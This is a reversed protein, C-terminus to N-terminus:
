AYSGWWRVILQYALLDRPVRMTFRIGADGPNIPDAVEAGYDLDAFGFLRGLGTTRVEIVAPTEVPDSGGGSPPYEAEFELRVTDAENFATVDFRAGGAGIPVHTRSASAGISGPMGLALDAQLPRTATPRTVDREVVGGAPVVLGAVVTAPQADAAAVVLRYTGAPVNRIRYQNALDGPAGAVFSTGSMLAVALDSAAPTVEGQVTTSGGSGGSSGCGTVALALSGVLAALLLRAPCAAYRHM